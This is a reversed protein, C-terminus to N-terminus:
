KLAVWYTGAAPVPQFRAFLRELTDQPDLDAFRQPHLWKAFVQVAVVNLPSNYFHHWIAYAQGSRMADLEVIGPRSAARLLSARAMEPKVGAGLAIREPSQTQSASSGIGTGIYVDPQHGLLYELSLHGHTGPILGKAINLGHARDVFRGMMGNAMTACCEKSLGVRNEIFVRPMASVGALRKTVRALEGRYFDLFEAAERERGLVAGLLEISRPTNELPASRFDIFVVAVGARELRIVLEHDRPSPGHGELGFVALDPALAIAKEASFSAPALHGVRPIDDIAPFRERYQAYGDPDLFKFEGQMGVVRALPNERELIALASIFRGEGLLIRQVKTPSRVSRGALDTLQSAAQAAQGLGVGLLVLWLTLLALLRHRAILSDM